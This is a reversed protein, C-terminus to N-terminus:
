IIRGHCGDERFNILNHHTCHAVPFPRDLVQVSGENM